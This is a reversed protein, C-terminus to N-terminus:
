ICLSVLVLLGDSEYLNLGKPQANMDVAQYKKFHPELKKRQRERERKRM